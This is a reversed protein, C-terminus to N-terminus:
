DNVAESKLLEPMNAKVWDIVDLLDVHTGNYGGENRASIILRGAGVRRENGEYDKRECIKAEMEEAYERIKTERENTVM